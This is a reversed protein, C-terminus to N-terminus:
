DETSLQKFRTLTNSIDCFDLYTKQLLTKRKTVLAERKKQETANFGTMWFSNINELLWIELLFCFPAPITFSIGPKMSKMLEKIDNIEKEQM